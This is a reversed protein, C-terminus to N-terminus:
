EVILRKAMVPKDNIILQYLYMGSAFQSIDVSTQHLGEGPNEFQHQYVVKGNLDMIRIQAASGEILKFTINVSRSAPNPYANFLHNNSEAYVPNNIGSLYNTRLTYYGGSDATIPKCALKGNKSKARIFYELSDSGSLNANAIDGIWFGASDLLTITNWTSNNKRWICWVSDVGSPTTAKVLIPYKPLAPVLGDVPPHWIRLPNEVPIQMSICHIAGGLWSMERCDIPVIKYGPMVRKYFAMIRRHQAANGSNGNYYSPFIFSKNVTLGNIFNRPDDNLSDCRLLTHHGNDDTPHEVRLIRYPRNYTSKLASLLQVNDEIIQKDQATIVSPYQAAMLTQEDILKLYLDIHGTGGDCKLSVLKSLDPTNFIQKLTDFTVAQTWGPSHASSSANINTIVDSFFLRGYGDTMLNGGEADLKTPYNQYGMAGALQAPFNNDNDRGDYYKMDVFGISDLNKHYFAMPGFDRSWWDDGNAVLFRYNFLPTGRSVMNNLILTTDTNKLVRIWVVCEKQIADALQASIDAYPSTLDMGSVNGQNDYDFSWSIAVAQSEEYEGPLIIDDPVRKYADSKFLDTHTRSYFMAKEQETRYAPKKGRNVHQASAHQSCFIFLLLAPLLKHLKM